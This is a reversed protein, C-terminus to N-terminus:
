KPNIGLRKMRDRLTGRAMNLHRAARSINGDFDALAKAITEREIGALEERLAVKAPGSRIAVTELFDHPLHPPEIVRDKTMVLAAEVVHELERINGPWAHRRLVDLAGQSFERGEFRDHKRVFHEVLTPIEDKRDRLPPLRLTVTNLRYYLDERFRGQAVLRPIDQKTAAVVRVDARLTKEGGVREFEHSQLVRLLKPQVSLPVDDVEDLFLTGGAALEFRGPRTRIAGSFAGKEHGFLESEILSERLAVCSVKVLPGQRRPSSYHITDALLEKGTGTEGVVLVTADSDAVVCIQEFLQRMSRSRGVMSHLRYESDLAQRLAANESSKARYEFLRELKVLLEDTTFPKTLFDYAGAKMAEVATQVSGYATMMVISTEPRIERAKALITMGDLGPLKLDVLAVDWFEDRLLQFGETGDGTGRVEYGADALADVVMRRKLEEDEIILVRRKVM